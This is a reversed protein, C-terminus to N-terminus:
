SGPQQPIVSTFSTTDGCDRPPPCFRVPMVDDTTNTKTGGGTSIMILPMNLVDSDTVGGFTKSYETAAQADMAAFYFHVNTIGAAEARDLMSRLTKVSLIGQKTSRYQELTLNKYYHLIMAKAREPSISAEGIVPTPNDEKRGIPDKKGNVNNTDKCSTSCVFLIVPLVLVLLTNKM